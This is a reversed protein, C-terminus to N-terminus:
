VLLLVQQFELPFNKLLIRQIHRVEGKSYDQVFFFIRMNVVMTSRVIFEHPHSPPLPPIGIRLYMQPLHSCQLASQLEAKVVAMKNRNV